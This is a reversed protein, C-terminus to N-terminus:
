RHRILGPLPLGGLAPDAPAPTEPPPPALTVAQAAAHLDLRQRVFSGDIVASLEYRGCPLGSVSLQRSPPRVPVPISGSTARFYESPVADAPVVGPLLLLQAVLGTASLVLGCGTGDDGLTVEQRDGRLELTREGAAGRTTFLWLGQALEVEFRGAEDTDLEVARSGDLLPTARVRTVARQGPPRLVRGLVKTGPQLSIRVDRAGPTAVAAGSFAGRTAFLKVPGELSTPVKFRGAADTVVPVGEGEAVVSAGGLPQGAPELVVGELESVRKLVVDGVDGKAGELFTPTLGAAYLDLM